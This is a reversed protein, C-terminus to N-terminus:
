AGLAERLKHVARFYIQRVTAEKEAGIKAAIEAYSMGCLSRLVIMERYREPLKLLCEEM